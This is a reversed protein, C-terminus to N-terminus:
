VANGRTIGTTIRILFVPSVSSTMGSTRSQDSRGFIYTIKFDGGIIRMM